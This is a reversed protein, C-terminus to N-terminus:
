LNRLYKKTFPYYIQKIFSKEKAYKLGYVWSRQRKVKNITGFIHDWFSFVFGYNSNTDAPIAHHHIIHMSPLTIIKSIVKDIWAPVIINSHHFIGVFSLIIEYLIYVKIPIALLIIAPLKFLFAVVPEFFHIRIGTTADVNEDLHHIEHFKWVM